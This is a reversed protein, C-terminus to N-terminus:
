LNGQTNVKGCNGVGLLGLGREETRDCRWLKNGKILISYFCWAGVGFKVAERPRGKKEIFPETCMHILVHMDLLIHMGKRKNM